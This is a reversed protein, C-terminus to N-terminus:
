SGKVPSHIRVPNSGEVDCSAIHVLVAFILTHATAQTQGRLAKLCTDVNEIYLYSSSHDTLKNGPPYSIFLWYPLNNYCDSIRQRTKTYINNENDAQGPENDTDKM